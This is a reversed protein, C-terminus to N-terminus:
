SWNRYGHQGREKKKGQKKLGLEVYSAASHPSSRDSCRAAHYCAPSKGSSSRCRWWKPPGWSASSARRRQWPRRRWMARRRPWRTGWLRSYTLNNLLSKSCTRLNKLLIIVLAGFLYGFVHAVNRELSWLWPEWSLGCVKNPATKTKNWWASLLLPM